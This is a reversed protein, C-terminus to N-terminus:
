LATLDTALQDVLPTKEASRRSSSSREQQPPQASSQLPSEQLVRRTQRRVEEPSIGLRRLVDIAIGEQQRVLGLLLHETGIYHHGMRRAEDVALELVKKTEASLELAETAARDSSDAARTVLDEVKRAELGLERLVRGAVGGDERMLGLLLHETGIQSHQLREAEEQALSLVRRARQTFREMKNSM